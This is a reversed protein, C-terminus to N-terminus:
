VREYGAPFALDPTGALPALMLKPDRRDIRNQITLFAVVLLILLIPVGTRDAVAKVIERTRAPPQAESRTAPAARAPMAATAADGATAPPPDPTPPLTPATPERVVPPAAGSPLTAPTPAPLSPPAEEGIPPPLIAPASLGLEDTVSRLTDVTDGSVGDVTDVVADVIEGVPGGAPGAVPSDLAEVLDEVAGGTLDDVTDVRDGVLDDTLGDVADLTAGSPDSTLDGLPLAAAPGATVLVALLAGALALRLRPLREGQATM